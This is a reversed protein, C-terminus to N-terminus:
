AVVPACVSPSEVLQTCLQVGYHLRLALSCHRHLCLHMTSDHGQCKAAVAQMVMHAAFSGIFPPAYRQATTLKYRGIDWKIM